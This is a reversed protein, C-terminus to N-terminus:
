QVINATNGTNYFVGKYGIKYENIKVKWEGVSYEIHKRQSFTQKCRRGM